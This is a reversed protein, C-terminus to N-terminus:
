REHDARPDSSTRRASPSARSSAPRHPDHCDACGMVVRRGQWGDLRKGHAGGAWADVQRLPMARVAPLESGADRTRWEQAGAARRERGCPLDLLPARRSQTCRSSTRTRMRSASTPWSWGGGLHCSTCPYQGRRGADADSHVPHSRRIAAPPGHGARLHARRRRVAARGTRDLGPGDPNSGDEACQFGPRRRAGLRARHGPRATDTAPPRQDRAARGHEACGAPLWVASLCAMALPLRMRSM